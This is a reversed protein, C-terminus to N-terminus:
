GVMSAQAEGVARRAADRGTVFGTSMGHGNCGAAYIAGPLGPVEGMRPLGDPTFAMTGAWRQVIPRDGFHPLARRLFEELAGQVAGTPTELLGVETDRCTWRCGGLLFTGDPLQRFYEYGDNVYWVGRLTRPGPATALMQARVPRIEAALAPVLQPLYANTTLVARGALITGADSHLRVRDGATELGRVCVGTRVEGGLEVIARALGRCLRVPDLGGDRPQFIGGGLIESGSARRVEAADKWELEVGMARLAECSERLEEEQGTGALAAVWSGEPLFECDIHVSHAPRGPDLIEARLLERNERSREWWWRAAPEGLLRVAAVYSEATGTILFGANRGSARTAVAGAELLLPRHGAKALWYATSLGVIGGGVVVVDFSPTSM